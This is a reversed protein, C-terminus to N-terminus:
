DQWAAMAAEFAAEEAEDSWPNEPPLEALDVTPPPLYVEMEWSMREKSDLNRTMWYTLLDCLDAVSLLQAQIGRGTAWGNFVDWHGLATILLRQTV